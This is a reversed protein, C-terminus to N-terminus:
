VLRERYAFAIAEGRNRLNLKMLINSAHSTATRRSIFLEDAIEQNTRGGAILRLVECERPSLGYPADSNDGSISTSALTVVLEDSGANETRLTTSQPRATVSKDEDPAHRTIEASRRFRERVKPQHWRVPLDFSLVEDMVAVEPLSYGANWSSVMDPEELRQRITQMRHEDLYLPKGKPRPVRNLDFLADAMGLFRAAQLPDEGDFALCAFADLCLAACYQMGYRLGVRKYTVISERLLKLSREHQGREIALCGSGWLGFALCHGYGIQRSIELSEELIAEAAALDGKRRPIDGSIALASPLLHQDGLERAIEISKRFLGEAQKADDDRLAMVGQHSLVNGLRQLDGTARSSRRAEQFYEAASEHDNHMLHFWGLLDLAAASGEGDDVSVALHLSERYNKFAEDHRGIDMLVWGLSQLVQGAHRPDHLERFISLAEEGAKLSQQVEDQRREFHCLAHLAHARSVTRATASPHALLSELMGRAEIDHSLNTRFPWISVALAMAAELEEREILWVLSNRLNDRELELHELQAILRSGREEPNASKVKAQMFAVQQIYYTAHADKAHQEEGCAVLCELGYERLSELCRFRGGEGSDPMTQLLSHNVLRGLLDVTSAEFDCNAAIAEAAELDFGGSFVSLQRFLAQEEQTLLDYSWTITARLTQQRAPADRRGGVLLPLRHELRTLLAAPPLLKTRSAALEISLPLGDLRRCIEAIAPANTDVLAFKPDIARAHEVFLRVAASTGISASTAYKTEDPLTLPPVSFEHEGRLHLPIRSTALVKIGTASALLNAVLPAATAVHEFNDLVLLLQKDKIRDLLLNPQWRSPDARISLSRAIADIVLNPDAIPALEVTWVGDPFFSAVSEAAALALRTKGVGGPGTLTLLRVDQQLLAGVESVAIERGVLPTPFLSLSAQLTKTRSTHDKDM